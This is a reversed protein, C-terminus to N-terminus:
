RDKRQSKTIQKLYHNLFKNRATKDEMAVIEDVYADVLVEDDHFCADELLERLLVLPPKEGESDESNADESDHLEEEDSEEDSEDNNVRD